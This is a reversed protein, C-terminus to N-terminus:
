LLNKADQSPSIAFRQWFRGYMQESILAYREDGEMARGFPPMGMLLIFLVVGSAFIDAQIGDYFQLDARSLEIDIMEPAEYGETYCLGGVLGKTLYPEYISAFGFDIIKPRFDAGFVINQTKIDRHVFQGEHIYSLGDLIQIFLNKCIQESM